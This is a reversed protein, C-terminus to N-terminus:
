SAATRSPAAEEVGAFAVDRIHVALRWFFLASFLVGLIASTYQITGPVDLSGPERVELAVGVLILSAALGAVNRLGLVWGLSVFRGLFDIGADGGNAAYVLLTGFVMIALSAVSAVNDVALPPTATRWALEYLLTLSILSALTYRLAARGPLPALALQAKLATVNWLYM